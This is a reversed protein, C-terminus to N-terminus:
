VDEEEEEEGHVVATCIDRYICYTECSHHIGDKDEWSDGYPHPKLAETESRLRTLLEQILAPADGEVSLLEVKDDLLLYGAEKPQISGQSLLKEAERYLYHQLHQDAQRKLREPDGTKYDIIGYSGDQLRDVRDISGKFLFSVAGTTMPLPADQGLRGFHEETKLVQRGQARTWDVAGQIMAMAKVKAEKMREEPGPPYERLQKEWERSFLAELLAQEAAQDARPSARLERYYLELVEHCLTGMVNKPLWRDLRWEPPSVKRLRLIHSLYFAFPCRLADEMSTASFVFDELVKAFDEEPQLQAAEAGGTGPAPPRLATEEERLLPDEPTVARDPALSVLRVTGGLEERLRTWEPSPLLTLQRDPEYDPYSLILEGTHHLLLERFRYLREEGAERSLALRGAHKGNLLSREADLLVASERRSVFCDRDMGLVYLRERGSYLAQSVSLCFLAGPRANEALISKDETLRLVWNLLNEGKPLLFVRSVVSRVAGLASAELPSSVRCGSLFDLFATRQEELSLTGPVTLDFVLELWHRWVESQAMAEEKETQSKRDDAKLTERYRDVFDLYRERDGWGVAKDRLARALRRPGSDSLCGGQELLKCILEADFRREPLEALTRLAMHLASTRISVGSSIAVPLGMRGAAEYLRQSYSGSLCVVACDDVRRGSSLIDRLVERVEADVGRCATFRVRAALDGPQSAPKPKGLANRPMPLDEPTELDLVTLRDGALKELLKRELATCCVGPLTVCRIPKKGEAERIALRFLDARDLLKREEKAQAYKVRLAQLDRLKPNETLEPVEEMDLEQLARCLERVAPLTGATQRNFTGTSAYVCALMLEATEDENMLRKAGSRSLAGACLAAALSYPTEARVGVLLGCRDAATTVLRRGAARSGLLLVTDEPVDDCRLASYIRQYFDM